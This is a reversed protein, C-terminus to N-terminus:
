SAPFVLRAQNSRSRFIAMWKKTQLQKVPGLPLIIVRRFTAHKELVPAVLLSKGWLYQDRCEVSRASTPLHLWLVRMIPVGTTACERVASYLYPLMRYGLELYKRCIQEV